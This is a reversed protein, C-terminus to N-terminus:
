KKVPLIVASILVVPEAPREGECRTNAIRDLTDAGAVLNGFASYGKDLNAAHESHVIFFQSSASNPDSGRAMSLTGRVHRLDSPELPVNTGSGGQGWMAQKSDDKTYPDGGQIVFNRIVRHFKTGDYFGQKCLTLFNRVHGPAKDPRFSLTMEGLSTLLVVQTKALDLTDLDIKSSDPAIKVVCNAGALGPWALAVVAFSATDAGPLLRSAPLTLTREFRTGAAVHVTGPQGKDEIKPAPKDDVKVDLLVGSFLDSPLDTDAKVDLLLKLEVNGTAAITPRVASLTARVGQAEQASAGLAFVAGLLVSLSRLMRKTPFSHLTTM